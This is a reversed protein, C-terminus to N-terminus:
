RRRWAVGLLLTVLGVLCLILASPEPVEQVLFNDYYAMGTADSGGGDSATAMIDADTFCTLGSNVSLANTLVGANDLYLSYKGTQFDLRIKYNHWEDFGVMDGQLVLAGNTGGTYMLSGDAADVGFGGFWKNTTSDTQCGVVGFFPGYMDAETDAQSVKMDWSIDIYRDPSSPHGSPYGSQIYWYADDNAARSVEVGQSSSTGVSSEVTATGGSGSHWTTWGNQGNLALGATYDPSEFGTDLISDAFAPAALLMVAGTALVVKMRAGVWKSALFLNM